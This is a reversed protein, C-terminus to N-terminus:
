KCTGTCRIIREACTIADFCAAGAFNLDGSSLTGIANNCLTASAVPRPKANDRHQIRAASRRDLMLLTGTTGPWGTVGYM